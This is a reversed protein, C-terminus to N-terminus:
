SVAAVKVNKMRFPKIEHLNWFVKMLDSRSKAKAAKGNIVAPANAAIGTPSLPLSTHVNSLKGDEASHDVRDM